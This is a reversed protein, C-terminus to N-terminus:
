LGQDYYGASKCANILYDSEIIYPRSNQADAFGRAYADICDQGIANVNGNRASVRLFAAGYRYGAHNCASLSSSHPQGSSGQTFSYKFEKDCYVQNQSAIDEGDNVGYNFCVEDVLGAPMDGQGYLGKKVGYAYSDAGIGCSCPSTLIPCTSPSAALLQFSSSLIAFSLITKLM